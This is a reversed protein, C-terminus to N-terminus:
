ITPATSFGSSIPRAAPDGRLKWWLVANRFTLGLRAPSLLMAAVRLAVLASGAARTAAARKAPAALHPRPGGGRSAALATLRHFLSAYEQGAGTLSFREEARRRARRAAEARREPHNKWELIADCFAPVDEADCLIGGEGDGLLEPIGGVRSAVVPVGMALSEMVLNPRGDLRSCVVTVDFCPLYEGSNVFGLFHVRGSLGASEVAARLRDEM